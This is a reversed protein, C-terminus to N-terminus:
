ACRRPNPRKVRRELWEYAALRPYRKKGGVTLSPLGNPELEYHYLTRQSVGWEAALVARLPYDEDLHNKSM